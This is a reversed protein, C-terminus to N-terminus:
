GTYLDVGTATRIADAGDCAAWATLVDEVTDVPDGAACRRILAAALRGKAFKSNYSIVAHGGRPAPSLIRVAVVREASTRDPRWMAAYDGSRLDVILGRRLRDALVDTLVPRWFTGIVGLGPLVAKAPVRYDPVSEDGRVVGFLGSFIHVSRQAVRQEAPNMAAFGLGDYVVGAYRRLAPTTPSDLLDANVALAAAAVGDPLLLAAAAAATDGAVLKLVAEAVTVRATALSRDGAPRGRLPWGRGGATKGESPPLLLHV